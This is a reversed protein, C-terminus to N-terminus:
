GAVAFVEVDNANSEVDNPAIRVDGTPNRYGSEGEGKARRDFQGSLFLRRFGCVNHGHGTSGFKRYLLATEKEPHAPRAVLFVLEPLLYVTGTATGDQGHDGVM